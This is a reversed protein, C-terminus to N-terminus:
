LNKYTDEDRRGVSLVSIDDGQDIFIIRMDSKRVRYVKKDHGKLKKMDLHKWERDLIKEIVEKIQRRRLFKETKDM